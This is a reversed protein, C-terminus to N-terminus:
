LGSHHPPHHYRSPPFCLPDTKTTHHKLQCRLPGPIDSRSAPICSRTSAPLDSASFNIQSDDTDLCCSCGCSHVLNGLSPICHFSCPLPAPLPLPCPQPLHRWLFFFLFIFASASHPILLPSAALPVPSGNQRQWNRDWLALLSMNSVVQLSKRNEMEM